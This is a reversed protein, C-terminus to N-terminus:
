RTEELINAILYQQNKDDINHFAVIIKGSPLNALSPYACCNKPPPLNLPDQLRLRGHWTRGDDESWSLATGFERTDKDYTRYALMLTGRPSFHLCPSCETNVSRPWDLMKVIETYPSWTKGGDGSICRHPGQGRLIALLRGDPLEVISTETVYATHPTFAITSYDGWTNGGDSSRILGSRFFEGERYAGWLPALLTGAKTEVIKGYFFAEAGAFPIPKRNTWTDGNDVSKLIYLGLNNRVPYKGTKAYYAEAERAAIMKKEFYPLLIAGASTTTMGVTTMVGGGPYAPKAVVTPKGWTRGGDRSRVLCVQGGNAFDGVNQGFTVLVDGNPAVTVGAEQAGPGPRPDHIVNKEVIRFREGTKNAEEGGGVAPPTLLGVALLLAAITTLVPYM